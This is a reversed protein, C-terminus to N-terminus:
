PFEGELDCTDSDATLPNNSVTKGQPFEAPLFNQIYALFIVKSICKKRLCEIVVTLIAERKSSYV